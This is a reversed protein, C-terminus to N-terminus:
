KHYMSSIYENMSDKQKSDMSKIRKRAKNWSGNVLDNLKSYADSWLPRYMRPDRAKM